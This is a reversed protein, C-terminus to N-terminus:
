RRGAFRRLGIAALVARLHNVLEAGLVFPVSAGDLLHPVVDGATGALLFIWWRRPPARLLAATVIAYPPFLIAPGVRPFRLWTGAGAGLFCGVLVLVVTVAIRTASSKRVESSM